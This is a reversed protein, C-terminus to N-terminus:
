TKCPTADDVTDWVLNYFKRFLISKRSSPKCIDMHNFPVTYFEGVGPDSSEPPVFTMEVGLQKTPLTEGFSIVKTKFKEVYTKFCSNLELLTPSDAELEQVEVSPSFFYKVISNLDAMKSGRHPTSYFVVGKTNEGLQRRTEDQSGQATVLMKKIILGGMSHGVFVVPRQGVGAAQLAALMDESREELSQKFSQRPCSGGWQSLYSDFDCGIVRVHGSDEQLWDRPWCYSYDEESVQNDDMDRSSNRDQQRWTYFVGGLLGHVFVVDVGWNSLNNKHQVHRDNPLLLYIGPRYTHQGFEQDMNSLAKTAPLSVLLNPDQKWSALIGVWGAKFIAQHFKPHLCFNSIIKGIISKIRNNEPYAALIRSFLPLTPSSLLTTCQDEVTSHSLLAQLCQELLTEQSIRPRPISHIHHSERHFEYNLDSDIVEEEANALYHDLATSTFYQICQHLEKSGAGPLSTLIDRMAAVMEKKECEPPLPAPKLFFRLDVNNTRALGVATRCVSSQAIQNYEGDTLTQRSLERVANLHQEYDGTNAQNLLRFPKRLHRPLIDKLSEGHETTPSTYSRPRMDEFQDLSSSTSRDSDLRRRPIKIYQSSSEREGSLENLKIREQQLSLKERLDQVEAQSQKVTYMQWALLGTSVVASSTGVAALMKNNRLMCSLLIVGRKVLAVIEEDRRHIV